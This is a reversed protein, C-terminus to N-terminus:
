RGTDGILARRMSDKARDSLPRSPEVPPAQTFTTPPAAPPPAPQQVEAAPRPKPVAATVPPAQKAPVGFALHDTIFRVEATVLASQSVRCLFGRGVGRASGSAADFLRVFGKCKMGRQEFDFFRDGGETEIAGSAHLNELSDLLAPDAKYDRILDDNNPAAFFPAGDRRVYGIVIASDPQVLSLRYAVQGPEVSGIKVCSRFAFGTVPVSSCPVDQNAPQATAPAAWQAIGLLAM